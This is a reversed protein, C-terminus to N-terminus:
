LEMDNAAEWDMDEGSSPSSGDISDNRLGRSAFGLTNYDTRPQLIDVDEDDEDEEDPPHLFTGSSRLSSQPLGLAPSYPSFMAGPGRPTGYSYAQSFSQSPKQSNTTPTISNTPTIGLGQRRPSSIHFGAFDPLSGNSGVSQGLPSTLGGRGLNSHRRVQQAVVTPGSSADTPRGLSYVSDTEASRARDSSETSSTSTTPSSKRQGNPLSPLASIPTYPSKAAPSYGRPPLKINGRIAPSVAAPWLSKDEPLSKGQGAPNGPDLHVLITAAELLQVQQHKSLLLKSSSTWHPSHEWRHKSLCSPHRYVKSCSECRFVMGKRKGKIGGSGTGLPIATRDGDVGDEEGDVLMGDDEEDDDESGDPLIEGKIKMQMSLARPRMRPAPMPNYIGSKGGSTSTRRLITSTSTTTTTPTTVPLVKTSTPGKGETFTTEDKLGRSLLSVNTSGNIQKDAGLAPSSKILGPKTAPSKDTTRFDFLVPAQGSSKLRDAESTLPGTGNLKVGNLNSARAVAPSSVYGHSLAPRTAPVSASLTNPMPRRNGNSASSTNPMAKAKSVSTLHLANGGSIESSGTASLLLEIGNIEKSPLPLPNAQEGNGPRTM